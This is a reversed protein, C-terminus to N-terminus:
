KGLFNKELKELGLELNDEVLTWSQRRSEFGAPWFFPCSGRTRQGDTAALGAAGALFTVLFPAFGM